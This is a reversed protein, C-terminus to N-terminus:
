RSPLNRSDIRESSTPALESSQIKRPVSDIPEIQEIDTGPVDAHLESFKRATVLVRTELSGVFKNYADTAGSLSKGLSGVHDSLTAIRKYLEKGLESIQKANKALQEQRWGYAVIWLLGILTTPTAVIVNKQTAEELLTPEQRLAADYFADSAIFLVVFEPSTDFQEYYSKQGLLRIHSRLSKAHDVLKASRTAEDTAELAELYADLPVKADVIVNIGAPLHVVLDPRVTKGDGEQSPQERFDCYSLMGALEVVRKLQIEGWRGRVNPSRLASVLNTTEKNLTQLATGIGTVQAKLGEYAGVRDEELKKVSQDFKKISEDVPRFKTTALALFSENNTNLAQGALSNFTDSLTKKAQDLLDLKEKFQKKELDLTTTLEVVETERKQKGQEYARQIREKMILWVVAWGVGLGVVFGVFALVSEM